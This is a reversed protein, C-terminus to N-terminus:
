GRHDLVGRWRHCAPVTETTTEVAGRMGHHCRRHSHHPRGGPRRHRHRSRRLGLRHDNRRGHRSAAQRHREHRRGHGTRRRDGLCASPNDPALPHRDPHVGTGARHRGGGQVRLRGRHRLRPPFRSLLKGGLMGAAMQALFVPTLLLGSQTPNLHLSWQFYQVFYVTGGITLVRSVFVALAAGAFAPKRFLAVDLTPAGGRSQLLLFAVFLVVAIALQTLTAASGWGQDEGRLLALNILALSTILLATGTWDIRGQRASASSDPPLTRLCLVFAVAGIPVNILFIARWGLTDVLTGGLM